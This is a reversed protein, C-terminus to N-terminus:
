AHQGKPTQWLWAFHGGILVSAFGSLECSWAPELIGAVAFPLMTLATWRLRMDIVAAMAALFFVYLYLSLGQAVHPALGVTQCCWWFLPACLFITSWSYLVTRNFATPALWKGIIALCTLFAMLGTAASFYLFEYNFPYGHRDLYGGVLHWLLLLIGLAAMWRSRVGSGTATDLQLRAAEAALAAARAREQAAAVVQVLDEPVDSLAALRAAAREPAGDALDRGVQWRLLQERGALAQPSQPWVRLAQAFAFACETATREQLAAAVDGAQLAALRAFGDATVNDASRYRMLEVIADALAGADAFRDAPNAALAKACVAQVAPPLLNLDPLKGQEAARLVQSLSGSRPAQGTALFYLLGGLQYVDTAPGIHAADSRAQEPALYLPTGVLRDISVTRPLWSPADGRWAAALGWDLLYVEGFEGVMVNDPKIDLHVVGRAHAYRLAGCVQLLTRLESDLDIVEHDQYRESWPRGEILKMVLLPEGNHEVLEHVPLINPHDLWAAVWAERLVAAVARANRPSASRKVAVTRRLTPQTARLVEGMGGRGIREHVQVARLGEDGSLISRGELLREAEGGAAFGVTSLVDGGPAAMTDDARLVADLDVGTEANPDVPQM